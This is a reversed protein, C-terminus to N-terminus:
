DEAITQAGIRAIATLDEHVGVGARERVAFPHMAWVEYEGAPLTARESGADGCVLTSTSVSTPISEGPALDFDQGEGDVAEELGVVRGDAVLVGVTWPSTIGGLRDASTNTAIVDGSEDTTLAFPSDVEDPVAAGCQPFTAEPDLAPLTASGGPMTTEWRNSTVVFPDGGDLPELLVAAQFTQAGVLANGDCRTTPLDFTISASSAEGGAADAGLAPWRDEVGVSSTAVVEDDQIAAVHIAGIEYAPGGPEGTFAIRLQPMPEGTDANVATEDALMRVTVPDQTAGLETVNAECALVQEPTAIAGPDDGLRITWPGGYVALPARDAVGSLDRQIDLVAYAQYEGDPLEGGGCVEPSTSLLPTSQGGELDFEAWPEPMPGPSAVVVDDKVIVVSAYGTSGGSVDLAGTNKLQLPLVTGVDLDTAWPENGPASESAPDGGADLHAESVLTLQSDEVEFDPAAGCQPFTADPDFTPSLTPTGGIPPPTRDGLNTAIAAGVVAIAAVSAAAVLGRRRTRRKRLALARVRVGAAFDDDPLAGSPVADAIDRLAADLGDPAGGDPSNGRGPGSNPHQNM